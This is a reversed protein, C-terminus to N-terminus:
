NNAKLFGTGNPYLRATSAIENYFTGDMDIHEVNNPSNAYTKTGNTLETINDPNSFVRIQHVNNENNNNATTSSNSIVKISARMSMLMDSLTIEDNTDVPYEFNLPKEDILIIPKGKINHDDPSGNPKSTFNAAVVVKENGSLQTIDTQNNDVAVSNEINNNQNDPNLITGSNNATFDFAGPLEFSSNSDTLPSSSSSLSTTANETQNVSAYAVNFVAPFAALVTMFVSLSLAFVFITLYKWM